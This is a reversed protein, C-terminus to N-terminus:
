ELVKDNQELLSDISEGATGTKSTRFRFASRSQLNREILVVFDMELQGGVNGIIRSSWELGAELM